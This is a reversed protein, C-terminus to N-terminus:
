KTNPYGTTRAGNQKKLIILKEGQITRVTKNATQSYPSKPVQTGSCRHVGTNTDDTLPWGLFVGVSYTKSEGKRWTCKSPLKKSQQCNPQNM